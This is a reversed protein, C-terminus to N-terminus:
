GACHPGREQEIMMDIFDAIDSPGASRSRVRTAQRAPSSALGASNSLPVLGHGHLHEAVLPALIESFAVADAVWSATTAELQRLWADFDAPVGPAQRAAALASAYDSEM